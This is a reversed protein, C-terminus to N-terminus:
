VSIWGKRKDYSVLGKRLSDTAIKQLDLDIPTNVNFGQKYVKDYTLEDIIKKRVEEIYYQADELFIKKKKKLYIEQGKLEKYELSAFGSYPSCEVLATAWVKFVYELYM